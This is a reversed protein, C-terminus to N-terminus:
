QSTLFQTWQICNWKLVIVSCLVSCYALTAVIVWYESTRPLTSTPLLPLRFKWKWRHGKVAVTSFLILVEQVIIAAAAASFINKWARNIQLVMYSLVNRMRVKVLVSRPHPFLLGNTARVVTLMRTPYQWGRKGCHVFLYDWMRLSACSLKM